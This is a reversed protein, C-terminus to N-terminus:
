ERTNGEAIRPIFVGRVTMKQASKGVGFARSPPSPPIRVWAGIVRLGSKSLPVMFWESVEGAAWYINDQLWVFSLGKYEDLHNHCKRKRLINKLTGTM